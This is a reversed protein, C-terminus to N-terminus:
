QVKSAHNQTLAARLVAVAAANDPWPTGDPAHINNEFGIRLDLGM